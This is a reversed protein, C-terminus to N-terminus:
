TVVTDGLPRAVFNFATIQSSPILSGLYLLSTRRSLSRLMWMGSTLWPNPKSGNLSITQALWYTGGIEQQKLSIVYLIYAGSLLRGLVPSLISSGERNTSIQPLGKANIVSRSMNKPKRRCVRGGIDKLSPKTLCLDKEQTIWVFEKMCSRSCYSEHKLTYVYCIRGLIPASTCSAIRLYSSDLFKEEYKRLKQNRKLYHIM